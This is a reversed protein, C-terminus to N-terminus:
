TERRAKIAKAVDPYTDLYWKENVLIPAPMRNEFYGFQVYHERGSTIAGRKIAERVDAYKSLYWAEDFTVDGMKKALLSILFHREIRFHSSGEPVLVGQNKLTAFSEFYEAM